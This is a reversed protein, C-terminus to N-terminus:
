RRGMGEWIASSLTPGVRNEITWELSLSAQVRAANLVVAALTSQNNRVLEQAMDLLEGPSCNSWLKPKPTDQMDSM